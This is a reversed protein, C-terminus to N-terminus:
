GKKPVLKHIHGIVNVSFINVCFNIFLLLFFIYVQTATAWYSGEPCTYAGSPNMTETNELAVYQLGMGCTSERVGDCDDDLVANYDVAWILAGIKSIEFVGLNKQAGCNVSFVGM